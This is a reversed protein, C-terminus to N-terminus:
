TFMFIESALLIFICVIWTIYACKRARKSDRNCCYMASLAVTRLLLDFFQGPLIRVLRFVKVIPLDPETLMDAVSSMFVITQIGLLISVFILLVRVGTDLNCCCCGARKM